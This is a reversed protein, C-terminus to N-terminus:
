IAVAYVAQAAAEARSTSVKIALGIEEFQNTILMANRPEWAQSLIHCTLALDFMM